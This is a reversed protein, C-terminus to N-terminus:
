SNKLELVQDYPTFSLMSWENAYYGVQYNDDATVHVVTGIGYDKFLVITGKSSQLLVPYKFKRPEGRGKKTSTIM